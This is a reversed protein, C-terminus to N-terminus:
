LHIQRGSPDPEVPRVEDLQENLLPIFSARDRQLPHTARDWAAESVYYRANPFLLEPERGEQWASLLGGAHDFHLHTLFIHTVQEPSVGRDALAKM